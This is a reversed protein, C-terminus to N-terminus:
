HKRKLAQRELEELKKLFDNEAELFKIRAEAKKLKEEASLEKSSPRDTSGKGRRETELGAIGFKEFSDRWRQLCRKPQKKGIVELNFGNEIFIQSPGKGTKYEQVAKIKFASHYSISRDSVRVVNPNKELEKMQFETYINKSKM